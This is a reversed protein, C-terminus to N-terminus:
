IITRNYNKVNLQCFFFSIAYLFHKKQRRPDVVVFDTTTAAM